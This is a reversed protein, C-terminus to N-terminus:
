KMFGTLYDTWSNATNQSKSVGHIATEMEKTIPAM